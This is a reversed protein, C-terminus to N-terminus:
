SVPNFMWLGWYKTTTLHYSKTRIEFNYYGEYACGSDTFYVDSGIVSTKWSSSYNSNICGTVRAETPKKTDVTNFYQNYGNITKHKQASTYTSHLAPISIENFTLMYDGSDAYVGSIAFFISLIFVAFIFKILKM